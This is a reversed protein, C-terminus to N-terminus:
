VEDLRARNHQLALAYCAVARAATPNQLIEACARLWKLAESDHRRPVPFKKHFASLAIFYEKYAFIIM